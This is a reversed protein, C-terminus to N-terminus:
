QYSTYFLTIHIVVASFVLLVILPISLIASFFLFLSSVWPFLTAEFWSTVFLWERNQKKLSCGVKGFVLMQYSHGM